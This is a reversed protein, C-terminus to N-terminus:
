QISDKAATSSSDATKEDQKRSAGSNADIEGVGKYARNVAELFARSSITAATIADVQGGYKSVTLPKEGPDLGYINSKKEVVPMTFGFAKEVLSRVPAQPPRFWYTMRDGLGPTESHQLVSYGSIKREKDFGVMVSISGGFGKTSFSEVATGVPEGNKTAHYIKLKGGDVEMSSTDAAPNNDFEPLVEQLAAIVKNEKAEAIPKVTVYNALGLSGAAIATIIGLTLTLNKLTSEKAM